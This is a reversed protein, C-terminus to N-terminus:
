CNASKLAPAPIWAAPRSTSCCCRRITFWFGQWGWANSCGRSLSDVFSDQKYKLDTLELVDAVVKKRRSRPVHYASAFFELYECVKLDEYVGFSDPMYGVNRRVFDGNEFVSKGLINAQGRTPQLLGALIKMTTSKGAGNPGIFGFVDGPELRLTLHDLATLSGYQKTLDITHIAAPKLPAVHPLIPPAADISAPADMDTPSPDLTSAESITSIDQTM